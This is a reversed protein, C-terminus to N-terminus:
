LNGPCKCFAAQCEGYERKKVDWHDGVAHGCGVRECVPIGGGAGCGANHKVFEPDVEDLLAESLRERTVVRTIGMAEILVSCQACPEDTVYITAGVLAAKGFAEVAQLIANHEAHIGSCRWGPTNYDGGPPVEEKSKLGRECGKEEFSCHPKGPGTGNYGTGLIHPPNGGVIVSGVHRRTCIATRAEEFAHNLNIDDRLKQRAERYEPGRDVPTTMDIEGNM